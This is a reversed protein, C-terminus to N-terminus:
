VSRAYIKWLCIFLIGYAEVFLLHGLLRRPDHGEAGEKTQM